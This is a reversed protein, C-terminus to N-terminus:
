IVPYRCISNLDYFMSFITNVSLLVSEPIEDRTSCFYHGKIQPANRDSGCAIHVRVLYYISLYFSVRTNTLM